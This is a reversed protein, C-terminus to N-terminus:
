PGCETCHVNAPPDGTVLATVWDILKTGGVTTTYLKGDDFTQHLAGAATYTHVTVGAAAIIADNADIEALLDPPNPLWATFESTAHPDYAFDFRALTLNPDHKGAAIWLDTVSWQAAAVGHRAWEPVARYAGWETNLVTDGFAASDPWSGSQTGLAIVHANPLRDAILAGYIPAAPSGATKGIVVVETADPYNAALYDVAATGNAYGHHDVTLDASYERVASGLHSDGTCSSVYFYSFGAFPNDERTTDFIGDRNSPDVHALNFAWSQDRGSGGDMACTTADWCVNGGNLFFVVRTPDAKREWFNFRSGDACHCDGTPVVKTWELATHNSSSTLTTAHCGALLVTALVALLARRMRGLRRAEGMPARRAMTM